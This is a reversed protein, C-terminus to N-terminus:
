IVINDYKRKETFVSKHLFELKEASDIIQEKSMENVDKANEPFSFNFIKLHPMFVEALVERIRNGVKDNDTAIVIEKINTSLLQDIQEESISSGGLAVAPIGCTWLTLADIESECIYIRKVKAQLCQYLGYLYKRIEQGDKEYLFKKIDTRRYKINIVRGLKDQWPMAVANFEESFGIGFKEQIKESIGRKTLYDSSVRYLYAMNELNLYTKQEPELKLQLNLKLIDVETLKKVYKDLLFEKAEGYDIDKLLAVLSIFNGKHLDETTSGSDVWTGNDLNVAFSPHTEPRFPSCAQFKNGKVVAKNWQFEKLEELIDIEIEKNGIKM